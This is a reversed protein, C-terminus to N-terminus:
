AAPAALPAFEVIGWGFSVSGPDLSGVRVVRSADVLADDVVLMSVIEDPISARWADFSFDPVFFRRRAQRANPAFELAVSDGKAGKAASPDM